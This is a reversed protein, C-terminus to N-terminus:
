GEPRTNCIFVHIFPFFLFSTMEGDGLRNGYFKSVVKWETSRAELVDVFFNM